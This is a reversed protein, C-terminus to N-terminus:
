RETVISLKVLPYPLFMKTETLGGLDLFSGRVRAHFAATSVVVVPGGGAIPCLPALATSLHLTVRKTPYLLLYYNYQFM